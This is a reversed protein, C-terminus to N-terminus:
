VRVKRGDSVGERGERAEVVRSGLAYALVGVGLGAGAGFCLEAVVDREGRALRAAAGGVTAAVLGGLVGRRARASLTVVERREGRAVGRLHWGLCGLGVVSTGYQLLDYVPAGAVGRGLVPFLRVGAAGGHTFADWGVHSAAGVAASAVFWWGRGPERWGGRVVTAAEAVGAWPEPLLAVVPRRVLGHWALVLGGAVAVDVTPVAWWRHAPGGLGFTGPVVSELFFPVDPAFAGAVLASAVWPGRARAGEILPLVAAAHSLTFPM